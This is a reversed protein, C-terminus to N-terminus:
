SPSMTTAEQFGLLPISASRTTTVLPNSTTNNPRVEDQDLLQRSTEPIPVAIAAAGRLRCYKPRAAVHAAAVVLRGPRNRDTRVVLRHQGHVSSSMVDAPRPWPSIGTVQRVLGAMQQQQM